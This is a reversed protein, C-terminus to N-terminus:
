SLSPTPQEGSAGGVPAGRQKLPSEGYPFFRKLKLIQKEYLHWSLWAIGSAVVIGLITSAANAPAQLGGFRHLLIDRMWGIQLTRDMSYFAVLVHVVYLGYAYRGFFRLPASAFVQHLPSGARATVTMALLSTFLLALASFGITQVNADLASLGDGAFFMIALISFAATAVFPAIDSIQRLRDGNRAAVALLAGLAFTDVRAPMLIHSAYTAAFGSAADSVLYLRLALAALVLVGCFAALRGPRLLLVTAPWVVYFQEEVALSWFHTHVLPGSFGSDKFAVGINMAYTWYWWQNARLSDVAAVRDLVPLHPLILLVVLLFGYYLPFIRLFRRAYFNRFYAPSSRADLLIGTILFGSLVFFLDVGTWGSGFFRNVWRDIALTPKEGAVGFAFGWFHSPMVLLIALGRIGDLVPLHPSASSAPPSPATETM